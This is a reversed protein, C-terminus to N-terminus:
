LPADVLDHSLEPRVLKLLNYLEDTTTWAAIRRSREVGEFAAAVCQRRCRDCANGGASNRGTPGGCPDLGVSLVHAPGMLVQRSGPRRRWVDNLYRLRIGGLLFTM